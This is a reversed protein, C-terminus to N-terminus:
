PGESRIIIHLLHRIPFDRLTELAMLADLTSIHPASLPPDGIFCALHLQFFHELAASNFDFLDRRDLSAVSIAPIFRIGQRKSYALVFSTPSRSLMIGAQQQLEQWRARDLVEGPETRKAQGLFGKRVIAGGVHIEAIGLLDAGHRKEEAAHGSSARLTKAEWM